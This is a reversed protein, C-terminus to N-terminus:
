FKKSVDKFSGKFKLCGKFLRSVGNFSKLVLLFKLSVLLFFLPCVSSCVFQTVVDSRSSSMAALFRSNTSCIIQVPWHRMPQMHNPTNPFLCCPGGSGGGDSAGPRVGVPVVM